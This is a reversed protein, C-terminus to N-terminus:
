RKERQEMSIHQLNTLVSKRDAIDGFRTWHGM